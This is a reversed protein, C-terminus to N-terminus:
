WTTFYSWPHNGASIQICYGGNVKPPLSSWNGTDCSMVTGNVSLKRPTVFQGCNGGALAATTEYCSAGTGLNGNQYFATNYVTPNSCFSACPTSGCSGNQPHTCLGASCVDNTCASGDDACAATNNINTCAGGTCADNTCPNADNCDASSSCGSTGRASEAPGVGSPTFNANTTLLLRDVSLGDERMWLNLTHVGPTSVVITAVPGDMTAKTWSPSTAFTTIRDSSTPGVGDLGVHVSDDDGNAAYGRLWVQYTGTTSFKIPFDLQPSGASYGTNINAGNNPSSRMVQGGAAAADATTDWTHNARATNITFHEAEIVVTGSSELFPGSACTGNSPHTCQGASCVDSTCANGDDACSATNDVNQCGTTVNCSDTTCVNADDCALATGAACGSAGCTESGNCVNGDDCAANNPQSVCADVTEDCADVTCAVNDNCVIPAGATCAGSVCQEAGNCFQGDDCSEAGSCADAFARVEVDDIWFGAGTNAVSDVSDFSARLRLTAPAGQPFQSTLDLALAQWAGTNHQLLDASSGNQAVLVYAGGNVSVSISAKDYFSSGETGLFYKLDLLVKSPDAIAIPPSIVSGLARAGTNFNCGTDQGFFLANPASHGAATASCASSVHWVNSPEADLTFGGLGSNFTEIYVVGPAGVELTVPRTGGGSGNTGDVFNLTAAYSGKPLAGAASQEISATVTAEQGLALTGAANTLSLWPTTGVTSVQYAISPTPGYNKITYAQSPPSFPGGIPGASSLNEASVVRLGTLVPPCQMGHAAFGSCIPAYHPTGNSIDGDDDDLTLLDVAISADIGTGTHLPVSSLVLSRLIEDFSEPEVAELAERISWVTGSLLNGCAHSAGGCSSCASASYQCDNLATRLPTGCANLSFGYGLGPDKAFLAAITDSMGEGYAGQGSGGMNVIHHGYEHHNVSGFSTNANAASAACFNISSGDYWANGPCFGDNRNVNVPFNLQTSITPYDPLYSLLFQRIQNSEVYGNTQARVFENTNLENHVFSVPGPPTVTQSLLETAQSKDFVDFFQGSPLSSLSVPSTGSNTFTFAGSADTLASGESGAVEAFMLPTATEDACDAAKVGSTALGTVSGQVNETHVLSETSIIDLTSADALVWWKGYPSDSEVVYSLAVRPPALQDGTGAYVVTKASSMQSLASPASNPSGAFNNSTRLARLTKGADPKSTRPATSRFTKLDRLRSSGWVVPNGGGQKVLALIESDVVPLGDRQQGFRFLRYRYQGSKSDYMLGIGQPNTAAVAEGADLEQPEVETAAVGLTVALQSSFQRAAEIPTKGNALAQGFIRKRVAGLALSRSGAFQKQLASAASQNTALSSPGAPGAGSKSSTGHPRHEGEDRGASCGGALLLGFTLGGLVRSRYGM